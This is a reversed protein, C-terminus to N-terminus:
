CHCQSQQAVGAVQANLLALAVPPAVCASAGDMAQLRQLYWSTYHTTPDPQWQPSANVNPATGEVIFPTGGHQYGGPLAPPLQPIPDGRTWFCAADVLAAAFAANGARPQGFVIAQAQANGPRYHAHLYLALAGGMSHGTFTVPGSLDPVAQIIRHGALAYFANVNGATDPSPVLASLMIQQAWQLAQTTGAVAVLKEDGLDLFAARPVGSGGFTFVTIPVGWMIGVDALDSNTGWNLAECTRILKILDCINARSIM